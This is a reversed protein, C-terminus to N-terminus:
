RRTLLRLALPVALPSPLTPLAALLPVLIAKKLPHTQDALASRMLTAARPRIAERGSCSLIFQRVQQRWDRQLWAVRPVVLGLRAAHESLLNAIRDYFFSDAAVDDVALSGRWYANRGHARYCGVPEAASHLQGYLSAIAALYEDAGIRFRQEPMPLVRELYRRRWFNGTNPVTPYAWPGWSMVRPRLDGEPLDVSPFRRGMPHGKADILDLPTLFQIAEPWEAFAAVARRAADPHLLDDSDLFNVIAGHAATFGTNFASGQGGNDKLIATVRTGYGAIISASEDTSGDDVVIVEVGPVEGTRWDQALASDIAAALFRGYNYNNIIVSVLSDDAM